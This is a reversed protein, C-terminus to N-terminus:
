IFDTVRYNEGNTMRDGLELVKMLGGAVTDPNRLSNTEKYQRFNEVDKFEQESAARIQGQMDTDMIGPNYLITMNGTKNEEQELAVTATYRNLAAKTSCYASWGYVSRDAAGSTVNVATLVASSSAAKQLFINTSAMPAILNVNVHQTLSDTDYGGATDVPEVMGANNILYVKKYDRGFSLDALRKFVEGVEEPNSLDCTEHQYTVSKRDSLAQLDENNQRSVGIVSIGKEMLLKAISTGLGRSAGTVVAIEM